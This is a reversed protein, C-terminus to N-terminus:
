RSKHGCSSKAAASVVSGKGTESILGAQLFAEAFSAVASVYAGHNKWRDGGQPHECPALQAISCGTNDILDGLETGPCQDVDDLLGDSDDDSDCVDGAGDQDLDQQDPNANLPCNDSDDPVGDDDDDSDCHDGVGDDDSDAQGPNYDVPCNDDPDCVGDPAPLGTGDLDGDPCSGDVWWEPAEALWDPVGDLHVMVDGSHSLYIEWFEDDAGVPVIVAQRACTYPHISASGGCAYSLISAGAANRIEMVAYEPSLPDLVDLSVGFSSTGAPVYFYYSGALPDETFVHYSVFDFGSFVVPMALASVRVFEGQSQTPPLFHVKYDGGSAGVAGVFISVESDFSYPPQPSLAVPSGAPGIVELDLTIQKLATLTISFQGGGPNRIVVEADPDSREPRLWLPGTSSAHVASIWICVMVVTLVGRLSMRRKSKSM